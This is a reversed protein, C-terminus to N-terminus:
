QLDAFEQVSRIIRLKVQLPDVSTYNRVVHELFMYEVMAIVGIIMVNEWFHKIPHLCYHLVFLSIIVAGVLIGFSILTNRALTKVQENQDRISQFQAQNKQMDAIMEDLNNILEQKTKQAQQPDVPMVLQILGTWDAMLNDVVLNIQRDFVQKEVDVVYYFFFLTLFLFIMFVQMFISAMHEIWSSQIKCQFM